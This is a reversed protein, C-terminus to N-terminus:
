DCSPPMLHDDDVASIVAPRWAVKMAPPPTSADGCLLDAAPIMETYLLMGASFGRLFYRCHRDTRGMM